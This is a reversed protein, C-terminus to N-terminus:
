LPSHVLRIAALVVSAFCVGILMSGRPQVASSTFIASLSLVGIGALRPSPSFDVRGGVGSVVYVTEALVYFVYAPGSQTLLSIDCDSSSDWVLRGRM